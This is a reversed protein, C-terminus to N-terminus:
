KKDKAKGAEASGPMVKSRKVGMVKGKNKRFNSKTKQGRVPQGLMHRVGKFSRVKKMMKIDNDRTYDLDATLLHKDTGDDYDKRRNVMWTPMGYQLPNNIIADLKAIEADSLVGAKKNRDINAMTCVANAYMFGVGKIKHMAHGIPKSGDLDTNVIRVLHKYDKPMEPQPKPVSAVPAQQPRPANPQKQEMFDM